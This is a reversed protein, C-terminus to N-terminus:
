INGLQAELEVIRAALKEVLAVAAEAQAPRFTETGSPYMFRNMSARFAKVESNLDSAGMASAVEEKIIQRLQTTTIKMNNRM